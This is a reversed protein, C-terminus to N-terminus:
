WNLAPPEWHFGAAPKVGAGDGGGKGRSKDRMTGWFKGTVPALWEIRERGVSGGRRSIRTSRSRPELTPSQETRAAKAPGSPTGPHHAM